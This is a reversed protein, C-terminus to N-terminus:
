RHKEPVPPGILPPADFDRRMNKPDFPDDMAYRAPRFTIALRHQGEGSGPVVYGYDLWMGRMGAGAGFSPGSLGEDAPAGLEKRYGARVAFAEKWRWEAGARVDNYYSSPFNADLAVRVGSRTDDWSLGVGVNTPFDYRTEDYKMAGGLNQGAVGIGFAGAHLQLGADMTIGAGTVDGLKEGVYKGGLGLSVRSGFRQALQLGFAMSSAEFSGTPNNSADRGEFSGEGHYVGTLAWRTPLAGLRGGMALWEQRAPDALTVHSLAIETEDLMGLSAPNWTAAALNGGIALAAGGMAPVGAGAGLTLFSGATTGALDEAARATPVGSVLLLGLLCGIATKM